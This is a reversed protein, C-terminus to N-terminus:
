FLLMKKNELLLNLHKLRAVSPLYKYEIRIRDLFKHWDEISTIVTVTRGCQKLEAHFSVQEDSLKGGAQEGKIKPRKLEILFCARRVIILDPAGARFGLKNLYQQIKAAITPNVFANYIKSNPVMFYTIPYEGGRLRLCKLDEVITQQLDDESFVAKKRRRNMKHISM